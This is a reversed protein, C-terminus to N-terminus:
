TIVIEQGVGIKLYDDGYSDAFLTHSLEGSCHAPGVKQVGAQRFIKIVDQIEGKEFGALHFGGMVLYISRDFLFHVLDIIKVIRPHACGTLLVLGKHSSLILSQEKIWGPIIGTTYVGACISKFESVEVLGAGKAALSDKFARPFFAPLWVEINRNEDLLSALGGTHDKHDHSIVVTDIQQPSFGQAAMNGLLIEGSAGTDFLITKPMGQILCSFGWDKTM